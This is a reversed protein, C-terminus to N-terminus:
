GLTHGPRQKVPRIGTLYLNLTGAPIPITLKIEGTGNLKLIYGWKAVIGGRGAAAPNNRGSDGADRSTRRPM